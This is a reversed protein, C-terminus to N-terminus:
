ARANFYGASSRRDKHKKRLLSLASYGNDAETIEFCRSLINRLINRDIESDDVILLRKANAM